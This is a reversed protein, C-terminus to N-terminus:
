ADIYDRGPPNWVQKRQRDTIKNIGAIIFRTTVASFMIGIALDIKALGLVQQVALGMQGFNSVLYDKALNALANFGFFTVFGIGLARLVMKVLPGVIMILLQAIYVYQM